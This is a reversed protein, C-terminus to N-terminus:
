LKIFQAKRRQYVTHYRFGAEQLLAQAERVGNGIHAPTHADSGVTIIEGGCDRYLKLVPLWPALTRGCYTNVEIGRGSQVAAAFLVRLREWYPELTVAPGPVDKMYRLPYIIHGLVDYCDPLQVLQELSSIYDDLAAYCAAQDPYKLFYFDIGGLQPSQNHVSGIVFDLPAGGLIKRACDPDVHACGLEIGLRLALKGDYVQNVRCYQEAIPMWDLAFIRKGDENLLDCHDTTCLESLGIEVARAAEDMLDAESDMSCCTHTHYDALYM